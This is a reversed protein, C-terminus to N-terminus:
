LAILVRIDLFACALGMCAIARTHVNTPAFIQANAAQTARLAIALAWIQACATIQAILPVSLHLGPESQQSHWRPHVRSSPCSKRCCSHSLPEKAAIHAATMAQGTVLVIVAARSATAMGVATQRVGSRSANQGMSVVTAFVLVKSVFEKTAAIRQVRHLTVSRAKGTARANVGTVPARETDM